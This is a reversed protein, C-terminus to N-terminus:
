PTSRRRGQAIVVLISADTESLLARLTTETTNGAQDMGMVRVADLEYLGERSFTIVAQGSAPDVAIHQEVPTGGDIM